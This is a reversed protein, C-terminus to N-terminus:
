ARAGQQWVGVVNGAPDRFLAVWLAGEPYPATTIEGGLATVQRLTEDINDVYIYPRVGGERAVPLDTMFHGIVHGSGDAFSPSGPDGSLKWGFVQRYFDASRGGDPAPIRLYSVSGPRFVSPESM